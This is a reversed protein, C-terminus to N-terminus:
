LINQYTFKPKNIEVSHKKLNGLEAEFLIDNIAKEAYLRQLPELRDLKQAWVKAVASSGSDSKDESSTKALFNCAM